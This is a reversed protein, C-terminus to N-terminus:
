MVEVLLSLVICLYNMMDVFSELEYPCLMVLEQLTHRAEKVPFGCMVGGLPATNSTCFCTALSESYLM